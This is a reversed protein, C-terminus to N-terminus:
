PKSQDAVYSRQICTPYPLAFIFDQMCAVTNKNQMNKWVKLKVNKDLQKMTVTQKFEKCFGKLFERIKSNTLEKYTKVESVFGLAIIDNLLKAAVCFKLDVPKVAETIVTNTTLQHVRM